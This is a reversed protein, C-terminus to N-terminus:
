LVVSQYDVRPKTGKKSTLGGTFLVIHLVYFLAGRKLVQADGKM